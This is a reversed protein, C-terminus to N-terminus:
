HDRMAALLEDRAAAVPLWSPYSIEPVSARRREVLEEGAAVRAAIEHVARARRDHERIRRARDIRRRVRQRDRLTLGRARARLAGLDPLPEPDLDAAM